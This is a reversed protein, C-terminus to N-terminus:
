VENIHLSIAVHALRHLSGDRETVEKLIFGTNQLLLTPNSCCDKQKSSNICNLAEMKYIVSVGYVGFVSVLSKEFTVLKFSLIIKQM